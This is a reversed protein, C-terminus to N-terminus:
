YVEIIELQPPLPFGFKGHYHPFKLSLLFLPQSRYFVKLNFMRVDFDEKETEQSASFSGPFIEDFYIEFKRATALFHKGIIKAANDYAPNPIVKRYISEDFGAKQIFEFFDSFIKAQESNNFEQWGQILSDQLEMYFSRDLQSIGSTLEATGVQM